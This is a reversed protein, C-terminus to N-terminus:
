TSRLEVWRLRSRRELTLGAHVGRHVIAETSRDIGMSTTRKRRSEPPASRTFLHGSFQRILM